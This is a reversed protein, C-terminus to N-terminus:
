WQGWFSNLQKRMVFMDLINFKGNLELSIRPGSISRKQKGKNRFWCVNGGLGGQQQKGKNGLGLVFFFLFFSFFLFFFRFFFFFLFFSHIFLHLFLTFINQPAVKLHVVGVALRREDGM